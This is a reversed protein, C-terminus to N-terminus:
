GLAQDAAQWAQLEAESFGARRRSHWNFPPKVRPARHARLLSAYTSEPELGRQACAQRFWHNGIAVHGEEERLIVDLVAILRQAAPSGIKALKAQILPTADLGRAELTRPVLAMRALWDSSTAECMQWLGDHADLDGYAQGLQNLEASLMLFHKAEEQAVQWWDLYYARPHDPFRWVADLALNIANFEIHAISHVLAALGRETHVSRQPMTQPPKLLPTDPRGPVAATPVLVASEDCAVLAPQVAMVGQAKEAPNTVCLWHLALQRLDMGVITPFGKM